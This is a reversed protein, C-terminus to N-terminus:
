KKQPIPTPRVRGLMDIMSSDLATNSISVEDLGGMFYYNATDSPQRGMELPSTNVPALATGDGSVWQGAVIKGDIMWLASSPDGYEFSIALHHYDYDRLPSVIEYVHGPPSGYEFSIIDNASTFSQRVRIQYNIDGDPVRKSILVGETEDANVLAYLSITIGESIDLLDSDPVTVYEDFGNFIRATGHYGSTLYTGTAVGNMDNGSADYVIDDQPDDDMDWYAVTSFSPRYMELHSGEYHVDNSPIVAQADDFMLTYDIYIDEMVIETPYTYSKFSVTALTVYGSDDVLIGVENNHGVEFAFGQMDLFVFELWALDTLEPSLVASEFVLLDTNYVVNVTIDQLNLINYVKVDLGFSAGQPLQFLRPTLKVMPVQPYLPIDVVAGGDASIDTVTEGYYVLVGQADYVAVAFVRDAGAPVVVEGILFGDTLVLETTIPPSIGPGSVTLIFTELQEANVLGMQAADIKIKLTPGIDYDTGKESCGFVVAMVAALIMIGAIKVAKSFKMM